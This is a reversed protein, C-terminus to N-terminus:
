RPSALTERLLDSIASLLQDLDFPKKFARDAGNIRSSELNKDVMYQHAGSMAIIKVGAHRDRFESIMDLGNMGPMVLDAIVLDAPTESHQRLADKGDSAQVVDYGEQELLTKLIDRVEPQDDVVLIRAM